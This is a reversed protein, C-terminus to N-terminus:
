QRERPLWRWVDVDSITEADRKTRRLRIRRFEWQNNMRFEGSYSLVSTTQAPFGTKQLAERRYMPEILPISMMYVVGDLVRIRGRTYQIEHGSREGLDRRSQRVGLQDHLHERIAELRKGCLHRVDVYVDNPKSYLTPTRSPKENKEKADSLLPKSPIGSIVPEPPDCALWTLSIFLWSRM